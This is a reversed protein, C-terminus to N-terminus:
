PSPMHVDAPHPDYEKVKFPITTASPFPCNVLWSVFVNQISLMGLVGDGVELGGLAEGVFDGLWDGLSDGVSDGLSGGVSDGMSGRVSGGLAEGVFNGLSDGLSDGLAVCSFSDGVGIGM